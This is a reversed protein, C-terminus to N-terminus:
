ASACACYPIFVASTLTKLPLWNEEFYTAHEDWGWGWVRFELDASPVSPGLALM